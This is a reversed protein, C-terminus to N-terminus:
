VKIGARQYAAKHEKQKIKKKDYLSDALELYSNLLDPNNNGGAITGGMVEFRKKDDQGRAYKIGDGSQQPLKAPAKGTYIDRMSKNKKKLGNASQVPNSSGLSSSRARPKKQQTTSASALAKDNLHSQIVSVRKERASITNPHVTSAIKLLNIYTDYDNQTIQGHNVAQKTLSGIFESGDAGLLFILGPTADFDYQNGDYWVIKLKKNNKDHVMGASVPTSSQGTHTKSPAYSYYTTGHNPDKIKTKMFRLNRFATADSAAYNSGIYHKFADAVTGLQPESSTDPPTTSPNPTSSRAPPRTSPNPITSSSQSSSSSSQPSSTWSSSTPGSTITSQGSPGTSPSPLLGALNPAINAIAARNAQIEQELEGLKNTLTANNGAIMASQSDIRSTIPAAQKNIVDALYQEGLNEQIEKSRIANRAALITKLNRIKQQRDSM